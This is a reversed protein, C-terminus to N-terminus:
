AEIQDSTLGIEGRRPIRKGDQVYSAMASGEGPLLAGGYARPDVPKGDPTATPLVPGVEVDSDSGSAPDHHSPATPKADHDSDSTATSESRHRSSRHRKDSESRHYRSSGVRNPIVIAALRDQTLIRIRTPTLVTPTSRRCRQGRDNRGGGAIGKRRMMGAIRGLRARIDIGQIGTKTEIGAPAIIGTRAPVIVIAERLLIGTAAVGIARDQHRSGGGRHKKRKEREEDSDLTPHPPSPPWISITSNRVNNTAPASSDATRQVEESTAAPLCPRHTLIAHFASGSRLEM